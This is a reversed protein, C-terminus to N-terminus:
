QGYHGQIQVKPRSGDTSMMVDIQDATFKVWNSLKDRIDFDLFEEEVSPAGKMCGIFECITHCRQIQHAGVSRVHDAQVSHSSQFV